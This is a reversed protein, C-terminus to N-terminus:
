CHMVYHGGNKLRGYFFNVTTNVAAYNEVRTFLIQAVGMILIAQIEILSKPLPRKLYKSIVYEIIGRNRISVMTLNKIFAKDREALNNEKYFREYVLNIEKLTLGLLHKQIGIKILERIKDKNKM